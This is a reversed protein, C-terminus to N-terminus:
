MPRGQQMPQPAPPLPPIGARPGNPTGPPLGMATIQYPLQPQPQMGQQPQQMPPQGAGPPSNGPSPQGPHMGTMQGANPSVSQPAQTGQMPGFPQMQPRPEPAPPLVVQPGNKFNM